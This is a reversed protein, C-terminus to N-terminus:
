EGKIASVSLSFADVRTLRIDKQYQMLSTDSEVYEVYEPMITVNAVEDCTEIFENPVIKYCGSIGSLLVFTFLLFCKTM